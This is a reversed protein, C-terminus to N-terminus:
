GVKKRRRKRREIGGNNWNRHMQMIAGRRRHANIEKGGEIHPNQGSKAKEPGDV